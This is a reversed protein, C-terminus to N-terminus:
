GEVRYAFAYTGVTQSAAPAVGCTVTLTRGSFAASLRLAATADNLPQLFPFPGGQNYGNWTSDTTITVLTGTTPSTGTGVNVSGRQDDSLTALTAAPPSTGAAAGAAVATASAM